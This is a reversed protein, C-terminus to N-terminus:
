PLPDGQSAGQSSEKLPQKPFFSPAPLDRTQSSRCCPQAVACGVGVRVEPSSPGEGVPKGGSGWLETAGPGQAAFM